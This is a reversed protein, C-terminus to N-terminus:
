AVTIGDKGHSKSQYMAVDAAEIFDEHCMGPEHWSLGISLSAQCEDLGSIKSVEKKFHREIRELVKIPGNRDSFYTFLIAFEDGGLRACLDQKRCINKVVNGFCRLVEDGAQHGYRDNIFKFDDVDIVALSMSQESRDHESMARELNEYFYARNYVGTLDDITAQRYLETTIKHRQMAKRIQWDVRGSALESKPIFEEYGLAMAEHSLAENDTETIVVIPTEISLHRLTKLTGIGNSDSLGLDLLIIEFSKEAHLSQVAEVSDAYELEYKFVRDRELIERLFMRDDPDDETVLLRCPKRNDDSV